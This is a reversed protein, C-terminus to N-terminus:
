VPRDTRRRIKVVTPVSANRWMLFMAASVGVSVFLPLWMVAVEERLRRASEM